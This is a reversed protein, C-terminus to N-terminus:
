VSEVYNRQEERERFVSEMISKRGGREGRILASGWDVASQVGWERELTTGPRRWERRLITYFILGRM